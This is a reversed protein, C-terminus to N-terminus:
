HSAMSGSLYCTIGHVHKKEIIIGRSMHIYGQVTIGM